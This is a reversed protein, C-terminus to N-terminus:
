NIQAEVAGDLDISFSIDVGGRAAHKLWLSGYALDLADELQPIRSYVTLLKKKEFIAGSGDEFIEITLPGHIISALDNLVEILGSQQEDENSFDVAEVQEGFPIEMYDDGKIHKQGIGVM